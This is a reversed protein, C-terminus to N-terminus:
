YKQRDRLLGPNLERDLFKTLLDAERSPMTGLLWKACVHMRCLFSCREEHGPAHASNQSEGAFPSNQSNFGPGRAGSALIMGSSWVAKQTMNPADFLAHRCACLPSRTASSLCEHGLCLDGWGRPRGLTRLFDLSTASSAGGWVGGEGHADESM